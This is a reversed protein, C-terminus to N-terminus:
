RLMTYLHLLLEGSLFHNENGVTPLWPMIQFNKLMVSGLIDETSLTKYKPLHGLTINQMMKKKKKIKTVCVHIVHLECIWCLM